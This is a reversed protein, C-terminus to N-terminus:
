VGADGAATSRRERVVPQSTDPTPRPRVIPPQLIGVEAVSAALESAAEESRPTQRPQHEDRRISALRITRPKMAPSPTGGAPKEVTSPREANAMAIMSEM